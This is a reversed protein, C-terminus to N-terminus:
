YKKKFFDNKDFYIEHGLKITLVFWANHELIKVFNNKSYINFAILPFVNKLKNKLDRSIKDQNIVRKKLIILYDLDSIIKFRKKRCSSGFIILSVLDEDFYKKILKNIEDFENSM